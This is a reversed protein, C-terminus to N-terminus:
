NFKSNFEADPMMAMMIGEVLGIIAPIATWFFVLYVIGLKTNGLYFKHIGLGGLLIALLVAVMKSKETKKEM